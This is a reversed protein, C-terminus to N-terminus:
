YITLHFKLLCLEGFLGKKRFSDKSKRIQYSNIVYILFLISPMANWPIPVRVGVDDSMAILEFGIGPFNICPLGWCLALPVSPNIAETWHLM